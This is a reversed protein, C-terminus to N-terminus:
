AAERRSRTGHRFKDAENEQYTKWSLHTPNVCWANGCAHAAAHCEPAPGHALECVLRHATTKRGNAWLHGYGKKDRAFPFPLCDSSPFPLAITNIWRHPEGHPAPSFRAIKPDGYKCFRIYHRNCFGKCKPPSSCGDMRCNDFAGPPNRSTVSPDGHKM